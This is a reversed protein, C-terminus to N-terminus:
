RGTGIGVTAYTPYLPERIQRRGCRLFSRAETSAPRDQRAARQNMLDIEIPSRRGSGSEESM